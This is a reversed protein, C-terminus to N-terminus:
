SVHMPCWPVSVLHKPWWAGLLIILLLLLSLNTKCAVAFWSSERVVECTHCTMVVCVCLRFAVRWGRKQKVMERDSHQQSPRLAVGTRGNSAGGGHGDAAAGGDTLGQGSAVTSCARVSDQMPRRRGWSPSERHSKPTEDQIIGVYQQPQPSPSGLDPLSVLGTGAECPETSAGTWAM